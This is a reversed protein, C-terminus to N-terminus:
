LVGRDLTWRREIESLGRGLRGLELAEIGAMEATEYVSETSYLSAHKLLRSRSSSM